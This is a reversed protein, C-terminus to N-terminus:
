GGWAALLISLLSIDSIHAQIKSSPRKHTHTHTHHPTTSTSSCLVPIKQIILPLKRTKAVHLLHHCLEDVDNWGECGKGLWDLM